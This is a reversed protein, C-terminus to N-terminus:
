MEPHSIQHVRCRQCWFKHKYGEKGPPCWAYLTNRCRGGNKRPLLCEYTIRVSGNRRSNDDIDMHWKCTQYITCSCMDAENKHFSCINMGNEVCGCPLTMKTILPFKIPEM